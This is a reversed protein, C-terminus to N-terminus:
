RARHRLRAAVGAFALGLIAGVRHAEIVVPFVDARDSGPLSEWVLKAALVSLGALMPWGGRRVLLWAAWGHLLGSLGVYWQLTPATLLLGLSIAPMLLVSAKLLAPLCHMRAAITAALALAAMNIAAHGIDLHALHGSWLRWVEGTAVATRHLAMADFAGPWRLSAWAPLAAALSLGAPAAGAIRVRGSASGTGM